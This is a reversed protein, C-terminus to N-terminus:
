GEHDLKYSFESEGEVEETFDIQWGIYGCQDCRYIPKFKNWDITTLEESGCNPCREILIRDEPTEM